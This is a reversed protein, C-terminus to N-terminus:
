GSARPSTGATWRAATASSWPRATCPSPPASTGPSATSCTASTCRRRTQRRSCSTNRATDSSPRRCLRTAPRPGADPPELGPTRPGILMVRRIRCRRPWPRTDSTSAHSTDGGPKSVVRTLLLAAHLFDMDPLGATYGADWFVVTGPSLELDPEDRTAHCPLTPTGGVVVRPVVLGEAQLADRLGRVQAFAADAQARRVPLDPDRLHGDYAHLGGPTVGPLTDLLRYLPTALEPVIGTRHMGVDLDVLLDITSEADAFAAGLARAADQDDVVARFTVGPFTQSLRLLRGVAPGVPQYALLVDSLGEAALMEAEAITACKVRTLGLAVHMRAIEPLKHTKMHPRLRSTGGAIAILRRLNEEARDPYVLLAPSPIEDVNAIHWWRESM